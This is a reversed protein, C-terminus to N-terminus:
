ILYSTKICEFENKIARGVSEVTFKDFKIQNCYNFEETKKNNSHIELYKNEETDIKNVFFKIASGESDGIFIPKEDINKENKIILELTRAGVLFESADELNECSQLDCKLNVLSM